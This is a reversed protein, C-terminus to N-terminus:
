SVREGFPPHFRPAPGRSGSWENTRESPTSLSSATSPYGILGPRLCDSPRFAVCRRRHNLRVSVPSAPRIVLPWENNKPGSKDARPGPAIVRAKRVGSGRGGGGRASAGGLYALANGGAIARADARREAAPRPRISSRMTPGVFKERSMLPVVNATDRTALCLL